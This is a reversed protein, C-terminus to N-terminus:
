VGPEQHEPRQLPYFVSKRFPRISRIYTTSFPIPPHNCCQSLSGSGGMGGIRTRSATVSSFSEFMSCLPIVMSYRSLTFVMALAIIRVLASKSTVAQPPCDAAGATSSAVAVAAAAVIAAAKLVGCRLSSLTAVATAAVNVAAAGGAMVSGLGVGVAGGGVFVVCAVVGTATGDVEVGTGAIGAEVM